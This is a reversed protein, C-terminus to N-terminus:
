NINLFFIESYSLKRTGRISKKLAWCLWGFIRVYVDRGIMWVRKALASLEFQKYKKSFLCEICFNWFNNIQIIFRLIKLVLILIQFLFLLNLILGKTILWPNLCYFKISRISSKKRAQILVQNIKIIKIWLKRWISKHFIWSKIITALKCSQM